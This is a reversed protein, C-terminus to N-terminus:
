NIEQNSKLNGVRMSQLKKREHFLVSGGGRHNYFGRKVPWRYQRVGHLSPVRTPLIEGDTGCTLPCVARVDPVRQGGLCVAGERIRAAGPCVNPACPAGERKEGCCMGGGRGRGRGGRIGGATASAPRTHGEARERRCHRGQSGPPM